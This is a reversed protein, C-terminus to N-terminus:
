EQIVVTVNDTSMVPMQDGNITVMGSYGSDAPGARKQDRSQGTKTWDACLTQAEQPAAARQTFCAAGKKEKIIANGYKQRVPSPKGARRCHSAARGPRPM